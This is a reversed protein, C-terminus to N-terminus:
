VTNIRHGAGIFGLSSVFLEGSDVDTLV